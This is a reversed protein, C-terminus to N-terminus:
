TFLGGTVKEVAPYIHGCYRCEGGYISIYSYSCHVHKCWSGHGKDECGCTETHEVHTGDIRLPRHRDCEDILQQLQDVHEVYLSGVVMRDRICSRALILTERLRKIDDVIKIQPM